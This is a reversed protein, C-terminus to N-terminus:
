DNAAINLANWKLVQKAQQDIPTAIIAGTETKYIVFENKIAILEMIHGKRNFQEIISSVTGNHENIPNHIKHPCKGGDNQKHSVM